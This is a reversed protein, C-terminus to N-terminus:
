RPETWLCGRRSVGPGSGGNRNCISSIWNVSCGLGSVGIRSKGDCKDVSKFRASHITYHM